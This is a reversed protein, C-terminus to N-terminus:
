RHELPGHNSIFYRMIPRADSRRAVEQFGAARFSSAIGTFAFVDPMRDKRPEVPYGEIVEAGKAEAFSVAARILRTGLGQSRYGKRVFLCVISWVPVDDLPKLIRSRALRPFASRPAVACWGVPAGADYALIGPEEGAKVIAQFSARNGDGKEREYESSTLRWTM